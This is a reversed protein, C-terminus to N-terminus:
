AFRKQEKPLVVNAWDWIEAPKLWDKHGPYPLNSEALCAVIVQAVRGTSDTVGQLHSVIRNYLDQNHQEVATLIDQYGGPHQTQIKQIAEQWM